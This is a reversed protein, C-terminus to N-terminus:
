DPDQYVTWYFNDLLPYEAKTIMGDGSPDCKRFHVPALKPMVRLAEAYTVYGDHNADARSFAVTASAAGGLAPLAAAALLLAPVARM